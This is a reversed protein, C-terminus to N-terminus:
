MLKHSIEKLAVEEKKSDYKSDLKKKLILQKFAEASGKIGNLTNLKSIMLKLFLDMIKEEKIV